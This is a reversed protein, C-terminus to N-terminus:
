TELALQRAMLLAGELGANKLAAPVCFGPREVAPGVGYGGLAARMSEEIRPVIDAESIAGGGWIIRHPSWALVLSAALQGLYRTVLEAVATDESLQRGNLRKNLAPGSVLGEACNEHFRCLSPIDDGPLRNLQLHGAEPHMVGTLSRGNTALGAGIGTGVTVYAVSPLGKGAGLAQEAVAAANVDSDVVVPVDFRSAIDARLNSGSWGPKTTTLMLGYDPSSRDTVLPGFAALGIAALQGERKEHGIFEVLDHLAAAPTSTAWRGDAVVKGNEDTMRALIKTGGTEIGVFLQEGM